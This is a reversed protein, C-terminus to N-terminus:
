KWLDKFCEMLFKSCGHKCKIERKKTATATVDPARGGVLLVVQGQEQFFLNRRGEREVAVADREGRRGVLVRGGVVERPRQQVSGSRCLRIGAPPDIAGGGTSLPKLASSTRGNVQQQGGGAPHCTANVCNM